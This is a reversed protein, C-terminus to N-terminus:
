LNSDERQLLVLLYVIHNRTYEKNKANYPNITKKYYEEPIAGNLVNYKEEIKDSNRYAEGQAIIFDCCASYWEYKEKESNSVRQSPFENSQIYSNM